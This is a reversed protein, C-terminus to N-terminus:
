TPKAASQVGLCSLTVTVDRRSVERYRSKEWKKSLIPIPRLINPRLIDPRLFFTETDTEFFKLRLFFRLISRSFIQHLFLRLIQKLFNPRLFTETNTGFFTKTDWLNWSLFHSHFWDHVTNTNQRRQTKAGVITNTNPRTQTKGWCRNKHKQELFLTQTKDEKHKQELLM